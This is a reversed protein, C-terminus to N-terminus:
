NTETGSLIRISPAEPQPLLGLWADALPANSALLEIERHFQEFYTRFATLAAKVDGFSPGSAIPLPIEASLFIRDSADLTFKVLRMENNLRLLYRWLAARCVADPVVSIPAQLTLCDDNLCLYVEIRSRQTKFAATWWPAAGTSSSSSSWGEPELMRLYRAILHDAV